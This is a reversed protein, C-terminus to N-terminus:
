NEKKKRNPKKKTTKASATPKKAPKKKAVEEIKKLEDLTKEFDEDVPQALASQKEQYRKYETEAKEKAIEHSIKGAHSLVER